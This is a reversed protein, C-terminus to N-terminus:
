GVQNDSRNEPQEVDSSSSNQKNETNQQEIINLFIIDLAGKRLDALFFSALFFKIKDSKISKLSNELSKLIILDAALIVFEDVQELATIVRSVDIAPSIAVEFATKKKSEVYVDVFKDGIQFDNRVTCDKNSFYEILMAQILQHMSSTKGIHKYFKAAEGISGLYDVAKQTPVLFTSKKPSGISWFVEEIMKREILSQKIDQAYKGKLSLIDYRQTVTLSPYRVVNILFKKSDNDLRQASESKVVTVQETLPVCNLMIHEAFPKRLEEFRENSIPEREINETRILFPDSNGTKVLFEGTQLKQFLEPRVGISNGLYWADEADPLNSIIKTRTNAMVNKSLPRQSSFFLCMKFDRAILPIEQLIDFSMEQTKESRDLQPNWLSSAEDIFLFLSEGDLAPNGRISQAKRMELLALLLFATLFRESQMSLEDVEIALPVKLLEKLPFSRQCSFCGGLEEVLNEIKNMSADHYNARTQGREVKSKMANYIDFITPIQKTDQLVSIAFEKIYNRSSYYLGFITFLDCVKSIWVRQNIEPLPSEFISIRLDNAAIIGLPVSNVIYRADRKRDFKILSCNREVLQKIINAELTSKGTGTGGGTYTHTLNSLPLCIPGFQRGGQLLTGTCIDGDRREPLPLFPTDTLSSQHNAKAYLTNLNKAFIRKNSDSSFALGRVLKRVLNMDVTGNHPKFLNVIHQPDDNNDLYPAHM